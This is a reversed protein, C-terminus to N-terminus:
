TFVVFKTLPPQNCITRARAYFTRWRVNMSNKILLTLVHACHAAIRLMRNEHPKKSCFGFECLKVWFTRSKEGAEALRETISQIVVKKHPELWFLIHNKERSKGVSVAEWTQQIASM